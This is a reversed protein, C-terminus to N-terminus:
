KEEETETADGGTIETIEAAQETVAVVDEAAAIKTKKRFIVRYSIFFECAIIILYIIGIAVDSFALLGSFIDTNVNFFYNDTRQNKRTYYAANRAKKQSGSNVM